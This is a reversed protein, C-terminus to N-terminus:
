KSHHVLESKTEAIYENKTYSLFESANNYIYRSQIIIKAALFFFSLSSAPGIIKVPTYM